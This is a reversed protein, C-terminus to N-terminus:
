RVNEPVLCHNSFEGQKEATHSVWVPLQGFYPRCLRKRQPETREITVGNICPDWSPVTGVGVAYNSFACMQPQDLETEQAFAPLSLMLLVYACITQKM